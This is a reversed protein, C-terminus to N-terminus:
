MEAGVEINPVRRPFLWRPPQYIGKVNGDMMQLMSSGRWKLFFHCRGEESANSPGQLSDFEGQLTSILNFWIMMLSEASSTRKWVIFGAM